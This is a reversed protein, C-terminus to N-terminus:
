VPGYKQNSATARLSPFCGLDGESCDNTPPRFALEREEATASDVTGGVAFESLFGSCADRAGRFMNVVCRRLHPLEPTLARVADVAQPRNWRRGDFTADRCSTDGLVLEPRVAVSGLFEIVREYFPGQSLGNGRLNAEESRLMKLV